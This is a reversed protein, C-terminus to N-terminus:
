RKYMQTQALKARQPIALRQEVDKEVDQAIREQSRQERAREFAAAERSGYAAFEYNGAGGRGPTRTSQDTSKSGGPGDEPQMDNNNNNAFYFNGAGGRGASAYQQSSGQSHNPLQSSSTSEETRENAELDTAAREKEQTVAQINGVGGRGYPPMNIIREITYVLQSCFPDFAHLQM